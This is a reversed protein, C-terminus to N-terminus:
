NGATASFKKVSLEDGCNKLLDKIPLNLEPHIFNGAIEALPLLVFRRSPMAPHPITLTTSHLVDNNFLLIDIDIIRPGYKLARKRGMREEIGLIKKLLIAPSLITEVLLVQNLFSPQEKLGWAATEYISSATIISGCKEGILQAATQLNVLRNGINGGTLLYARNMFAYFYCIFDTIIECM